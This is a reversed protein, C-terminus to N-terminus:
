NVFTPYFTECYLKSVWPALFLVKSSKNNSILYPSIQDVTYIKNVIQVRIDNLEYERVNSSYINRYAGINTNLSLM